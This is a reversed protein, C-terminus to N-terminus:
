ALEEVEGRLNKTEQHLEELDDVAEEFTIEKDMYEDYISSHQSHLELCKDWYESFTDEELSDKIDMLEGETLRIEEQVQGIMEEVDDFGEMRENLPEDRHMEESVIDDDDDDETIEEVPVQEQKEQYIFTEQFLLWGVSVILLFIIMWMLKMQHQKLIEFVM